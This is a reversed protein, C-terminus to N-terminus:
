AAQPWNFRESGQGRVMRTGACRPWDIGVWVEARYTIYIVSPRPTERDQDSPSERLAESQRNHSKGSHRACPQRFLRSIASGRVPGPLLLSSARRSVGCCFLDASYLESLARSGPNPPPSEEPRCKHYRQNAAIAFSKGCLSGCRSNCDSFPANMPSLPPLFSLSFFLCCCTVFCLCPSWFFCSLAGALFGAVPYLRNGPPPSPAPDVSERSSNRFRCMRRMRRPVSRHRTPMRYHRPTKPNWGVYLRDM